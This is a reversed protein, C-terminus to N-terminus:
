LASRVSTKRHSSSPFISNWGGQFMLMILGIRSMVSISTTDTSRFILQFTEPVALGFLSPGLLLGAVDEGVARPQGVRRALYPAVRAAIIIVALQVLTFFSYTNPRRFAM